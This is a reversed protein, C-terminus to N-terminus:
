CKLRTRYGPGRALGDRVLLTMPSRIFSVISYYRFVMLHLEGTCVGEWSTCNEVSAGGLRILDVTIQALSRLVETLKESGVASDVAHLPVNQFMAAAVNCAGRVITEDSHASEVFNDAPTIIQMCAACALADELM